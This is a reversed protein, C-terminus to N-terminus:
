RRAVRKVRSLPLVKSRAAFELAGLRNSINEWRAHGDAINKGLDEIHRDNFKSFPRSGELRRIRDELFGIREDLANIAAWLAKNKSKKKM